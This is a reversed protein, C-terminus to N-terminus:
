ENEELCFYDLEEDEFDSQDFCLWLEQGPQCLDDSELAELISVECATGDSFTYSGIELEGLNGACAVTSILLLLIPLNIMLREM